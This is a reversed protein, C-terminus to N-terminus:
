LVCRISLTGNILVHNPPYALPFIDMQGLLATVQNLWQPLREPIFGPSANVNGGWMQVRRTRLKTWHLTSCSSDYIRELLFAEMEMSVWKPLYYMSEIKESHIKSEGVPSQTDPTQSHFVLETCCRHLCETKEKQELLYILEAIDHNKKLGKKTACTSKKNLALAKEQKLLALFDMRQLPLVQKHSQKKLIKWNNSRWIYISYSYSFPKAHLIKM